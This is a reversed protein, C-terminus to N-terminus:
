IAFAISRFQIFASPIGTKKLNELCVLSYYFFLPDYIIM